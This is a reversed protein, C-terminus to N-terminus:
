YYDDETKLNIRENQIREYEYAVNTKQVGGATQRAKQDSVLKVSLPMFHFVITEFLSRSLVIEM